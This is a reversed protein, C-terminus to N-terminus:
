SMIFIGCVLSILLLVTNIKANCISESNLYDHGVLPLVNQYIKSQINGPPYYNAVAYFKGSKSVSIGFGVEETDKWIIQTFHANELNIDPKNFNYLKIEDYWLKTINGGNFTDPNPNKWVAINEGLSMNKYKNKSHEMKDMEAIVKAWDLAVNSIAFNHKLPPVGHLRRYRNHAELAEVIFKNEAEYGEHVVQEQIKEM